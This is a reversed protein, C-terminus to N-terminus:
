GCVCVCVCACVCMMCMHICVCVCARTCLNVYLCANGYMFLHIVCVYVYLCFYVRVFVFARVCVCVVDVVCVFCVYVYLHVCRKGLKGTTLGQTHIAHAHLNFHCLSISHTLHLRPSFALHRPLATLSTPVPSSSLLPLLALPLFFPILLLFCFRSGM